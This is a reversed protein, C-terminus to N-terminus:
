DVAVSAPPDLRPKKVAPEDSSAGAAAGKGCAPGAAEEAAEPPLGAGGEGLARGAGSGSAGGPGPGGRGAGAEGAAAAGGGGSGREGPAAPGATPETSGNAPEGDPRTAEGGSSSALAAGSGCAGGADDSEANGAAAPAAPDDAAEDDEEAAAAGGAPASRKRSPITRELAERWDGLEAFHLLAEVVQGLSRSLACYGLEAGRLQAHALGRMSPSMTNQFLRCRMISALRHAAARQPM